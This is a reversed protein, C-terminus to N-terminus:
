SWAYGPTVWEIFHRSQVHFWIKCRVFYVILPLLYINFRCFLPCSLQNYIPVNVHSTKFSTHLRWVDKKIHVVSDTWFLGKSWVILMVFCFSLSPVLLVNYVWSEFLFKNSLFVQLAIDLIFFSLVFCVCTWSGSCLFNLLM